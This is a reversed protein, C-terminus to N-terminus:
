NFGKLYKFERSNHPAKPIIDAEKWTSKEEVRCTFASCNTFYEIYYLV